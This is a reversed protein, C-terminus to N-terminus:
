DQRKEREDVIRNVSDAYLENAEEVMSPILFLDIFWGIYLLGATFFWILGSIWKGCYFRHLGHIGFASIIWLLYAVGTKREM